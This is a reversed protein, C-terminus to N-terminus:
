NELRAASKNIQQLVEAVKTLSHENRVQVYALKSLLFIETVARGAHQRQGSRHQAWKIAEILESRDTSYINM